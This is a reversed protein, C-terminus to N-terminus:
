GNGGAINGDWGLHTGLRYIAAEEESLQEPEYAAERESWRSWLYVSIAAGVVVSGVIVFVVTSVASGKRPKSDIPSTLALSSDSYARNRLWGGDRSLAPDPVGELVVVV